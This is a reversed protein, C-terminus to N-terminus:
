TPCEGYFGYEIRIDSGVPPVSAAEFVVANDIYSYSWGSLVPAGDVFVEISDVVPDESLPYYLVSSLSDNAIQEVQYCWDTTCIDFFSVEM